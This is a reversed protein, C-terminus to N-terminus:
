CPWAAPGLKLRFRRICLDQSGLATVMGHATRYLKFLNEFLLLGVAPKSSWPRPPLACQRPLLLSPKSHGQCSTFSDYLIVQRVLQRLWIWYLSVVNSALNGYLFFGTERTTTATATAILPTKADSMGMPPGCM